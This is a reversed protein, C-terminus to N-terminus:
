ICYFLYAFIQPQLNKWKLAHVCVKISYEPLSELNQGILLYQYVPYQFPTKMENYTCGSKVAFEVVEQWHFLLDRELEFNLTEKREAQMGAQRGAKKGGERM